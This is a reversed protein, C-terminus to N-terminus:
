FNFLLICFSEANRPTKKPDFYKILFINLKKEFIFVLCDHM